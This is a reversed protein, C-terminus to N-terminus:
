MFLSNSERISWGNRRPTTQKRYAAANMCKYKIGKEKCFVELTGNVIYETGHPDTLIYTKAQPHNKGSNKESLNRKQEVTLSKGYSPNNPGCQKGKNGHSIRKKTEESRPKGSLRESMKRKYEESRIAGSPGEGGDTLNRLIGTQRDKRGLVAIMYIEHKFAEEETLNQKLLLIRNKDKPVSIRGHPGYVRGNIGKGVYYPTRDERLYAYTYYKSSTM